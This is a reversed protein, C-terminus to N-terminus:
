FLKEFQKKYLKRKKGYYFDRYKESRATQFSELYVTSKKKKKNNTSITFEINKLTDGELVYFPIVYFPTSVRRLFIASDKSQPVPIWNVTTDNTAPLRYYLNEGNRVPYYRVEERYVALGKDKLSQVLEEETKTSQFREYFGMENERLGYGLGERYPVSTSCLSVFTVVALATRLGAQLTAPLNYSVPKIRGALPLVGLAILDTYDVVRCVPISLRNNFFHIVPESLPSKWWIFFLACLLLTNKKHDPFFVTLFVPLVVLGAVDSLKGTLWNPYASKWCLDNALLVFLSIPFLPHLLPSARPQKM